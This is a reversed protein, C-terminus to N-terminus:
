QTFVLYQASPIVVRGLYMNTPLTKADFVALVSYRGTVDSDYDYYVGYIHEGQKYDVDVDENLQQYLQSIKMVNVEIETNNDTRVSLGHIVIESM